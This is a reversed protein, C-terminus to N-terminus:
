LCAPDAKGQTEGVFEVDSPEHKYTAVAFRHRTKIHHEMGDIVINIAKMNSPTM